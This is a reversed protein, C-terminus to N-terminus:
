FNHFLQFGRYNGLGQAIDNDIMGLKPTFFDSAPVSLGRPSQDVKETKGHELDDHFTFSDFLFIHIYVGKYGSSKHM